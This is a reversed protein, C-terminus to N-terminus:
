KVFQVEMSVLKVTWTEKSFLTKSNCYVYLQNTMSAVPQEFSAEYMADGGEEGQLDKKSVSADFLAHDGKAESEKAAPSATVCIRPRGKNKDLQVTMKIKATQYGLEQLAAVDTTESLDFLYYTREQADMTQHLAQKLLGKNGITDNLSTLQKFYYIDETLVNLTATKTEHDVVGSYNELMQVTLTSSNPVLVSTGEADAFGTIVYSNEHNTKRDRIFERGLPLDKLFNAEYNCGIKNTGPLPKGDKYFVVNYEDPTYRAYLVLPDIGRYERIMTGTEDIYQVADPSEKEGTDNWYGKFTYGVRAPVDITDGKELSVDRYESSGATRLRVNKVPEANVPEAPAPEVAPPIEAPAEPEPEAASPADTLEVSDSSTQTVAPPMEEQSIDSRGCGTCFSVALCVSLALCGQRLRKRM